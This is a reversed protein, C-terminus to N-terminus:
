SIFQLETVVEAPRSLDVFICPTLNEHMYYQSEKVQTLNIPAIRGDVKISIKYSDTRLCSSEVKWNLPALRWLLKANRFDGRIQDICVVRCQELLISRRHEMDLYDIYGASASFTGIETEM